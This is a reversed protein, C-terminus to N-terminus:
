TNSRLDVTNGEVKPGSKETNNNPAQPKKFWVFGKGSTPAVVSEKKQEILTNQRPIDNIIQTKPKEPISFSKSPPTQSSPTPGQGVSPHASQIPPIVNKQVDTIPQKKVEPLVGPTQANRIEKNQNGIVLEKNSIVSTRIDLVGSKEKTQTPLVSTKQTGGFMTLPNVKQIVPQANNQTKQEGTKIFGEEKKSFPTLPTRLESYDVARKLEDKKLFEVTAKVPASSVQTQVVKQKFFGFPLSFGKTQQSSGSIQSGGQTPAQPKERHIVLPAPEDTVEIKKPANDVSGDVNIKVPTFDQPTTDSFNELSITTIPKKIKIGISELLMENDKKIEEITKAGSTDIEKVDIGYNLLAYEIPKLIKEKVENAVSLCLEHNFKLADSIKQVFEKPAIERMILARIIKSITGIRAIEARENISELVIATKPSGLHEQITQPIENSNDM